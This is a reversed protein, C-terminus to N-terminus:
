FRGTGILGYIARRYDYQPINSNNQQYLYQLSLDFHPVIPRTLSLVFLPGADERKKGPSLQNPETFQRIVFEFDASFVLKEWPPLVAGVSIHHGDFSWDDQAPTGGARNIEFLYGGHLNGGAGFMWYHTINFQHLRADRDSNNPFLPTVDYFSWAGYRYFFETLNVNSEQFLFRPGVSNKLLYSDGGLTTFQLEYQLTLESRGFKRGGELNLHHDQINFDSLSGKTHINQYFSYEARGIWEPTDLWRYRGRLYIVGTFDRKDTITQPAVPGQFPELIVNTDYQMGVSGTVDWPKKQVGGTKELFEGAFRAVDSGPALVVVNQLTRRASALDGAEYYAEGARYDAEAALSPDLSAAKELKEAAEKAKGNRRLILGEYYYVRAREPDIKEVTEFADLAKDDQKTQYYLVGLDFYAPVYTRDEALAKQFSEEAEKLDGARAHTVGLYYLAEVGKPDVALAKEFLSMASGLDDQNLKTVGASILFSYSPADEAFSARYFGFFLMLLLIGAFTKKNLTKRAEV